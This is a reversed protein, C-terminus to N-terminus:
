RSLYSRRARCVSKAPCLVAEVSSCGAGRRTCSSMTRMPSAERAWRFSKASTHCSKASSQLAGPRSGLDKSARSTAKSPAHLTKWARRLDERACCLTKGVCPVLDSRQSVVECPADLARQSRRFGMAVRAFVNREGRSRKLARRLRKVARRLRKAVRVSRNVPRGSRERYCRALGVAAPPTAVNM